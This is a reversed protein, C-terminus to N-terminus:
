GGIGAGMNLQSDSFGGNVNSIALALAEFKLM